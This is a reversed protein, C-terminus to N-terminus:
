MVILVSWHFLGNYIISVLKCIKITVRQTITAVFYRGHRMFIMCLQSSFRRNGEAKIKLSVTIAWTCSINCFLSLNYSHSSHAM